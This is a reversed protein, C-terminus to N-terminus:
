KPEEWSNFTPKPLPQLKSCITCSKIMDCIDKDINPWWCYTRALHKMKIIGIHGCHLMNIVRCQLQKPIIIRTDFLICDNVVSLSYRNNFYPILKPNKSKSFSSPWNTLTFHRVQKLIDDNTTAKAIEDPKLSCQEILQQQMYNIQMADSDIFSDDYPIPLRSLADANGRLKTSKYRINYNYGMLYIAWRQLRDATTVPIGKKPNFISLLPKHDTVLEFARDALYQHFKKIGYVISLAAKEIQSYNREANNLTKSVHVIPKELGDPYRHLIVTGLGYNSADAALILPLKHDYHVLTTTKSIEHLLCEFSSQCEKTWVWRTNKEYNMQHNVNTPFIQFLNEM